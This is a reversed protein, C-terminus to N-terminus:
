VCELTTVVWEDQTTRWVTVRWDGSEWVVSGEGTGTEQWGDAPASTPAEGVPASGDLWEDLAARPDPAGAVDEPMDATFAGTCSPGTSCASSALAVLLGTVAVAPLHRM